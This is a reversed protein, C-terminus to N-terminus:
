INKIVRKAHNAIASNGFQALFVFASLERADDYARQNYKENQNRKREMTELYAEAEQITM